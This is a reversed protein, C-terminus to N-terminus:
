VHAPIHAQSLYLKLRSFHLKKVGNRFASEVVNAAVVLNEYIFNAPYTGNADIGGGKPAVLYVHDPKENDFFAEVAAQDAQDLETHTRTILREAPHGAHSLQRSIASGVMGRHGPANTKPHM